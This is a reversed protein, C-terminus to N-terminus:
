FEQASFNSLQSLGSQRYALYTNITRPVYFALLLRQSWIIYSRYKTSGHNSVDDLSTSTILASPLMAMALITTIPSYDRLMYIRNVVKILPKM